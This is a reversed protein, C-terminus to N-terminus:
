PQKQENLLTDIMERLEMMEERTLFECTNHEVRCSEGQAFGSSYISLFYREKGESKSVIVKADSCIGNSLNIIKKIM